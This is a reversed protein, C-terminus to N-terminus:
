HLYVLLVLILIASVISSWKLPVSYGKSTYFTECYTECLATEQMVGTCNMGNNYVPPNTCTRTRSTNGFQGCVASCHNWSSFASFGGNMDFGVSCKSNQIEGLYWNPDLSEVISGPSSAIQGGWCNYDNFKQGFYNVRNQNNQADSTDAPNTEGCIACTSSGYIRCHTFMVEVGLWVAEEDFVWSNINCCLDTSNSGCNTAPGALVLSLSLLLFLSIM